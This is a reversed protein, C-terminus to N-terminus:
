RYAPIDGGTLKLSVGNLYANMICAKVLHSFEDPQGVRKLPHVKKFLEFIDEGSASTMETEVLTPAINLVRIGFKGLDRAMPVTMGNIAGKSCGYSVMGRPAYTGLLSSCNIIVGREGKNNLPKNKSMYKASYASSYITGNVNIDMIFKHLQFDLFRTKTLSYSLGSVGASNLTIHLAGFTDYTTEVAKKVQESDTVDTKVFVVKDGGFEKVIQEGREEQLDAIGVKVGHQVLMQVTAYGLGSCGGTVFAVKGELKM